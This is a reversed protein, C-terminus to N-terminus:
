PGDNRGDWALCLQACLSGCDAAHQLEPIPGWRWAQYQTVEPHPQPVAPTGAVISARLLRMELNYTKRQCDGQELMASIDVDIGLKDRAARRAADHWSEHPGLSAAPLGWVHPLDEDDAPRQVLLVDGPRDPDLIALAVARKIM